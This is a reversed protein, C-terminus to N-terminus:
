GEDPYLANLKDAMTYAIERCVEHDSRKPVGWAEHFPHVVEWKINAAFLDFRRIAGGSWSKEGFYGLLHNKIGIEELEHLLTEMTPFIGTNYACSGLIVGRFRFIDNIIYSPHTKSTDHIRIKKIGKEALYRAVGDAMAETNGYMSSFAIVVGKATEYKSWADYKAIIDNIYSRRIPGHTSCIMRIPLNVLKKLALQAPQGFKGIINSYYRSIEEELYDLDVEDDFIGGDLTGFAGFIDGSFLIGESAEFTVMTEPWHLMPAMYFALTHQGIELTTGEKVEMLRDEMNYFHKLIPFTKANGIITAEPYRRILNKLAGTHDPEMHNIIVYDVKRGNLLSAINEVYDEMKNREITDVVVVKEDVILYSNYAVGKPLPWYNEFLRTRRDNVGIWYINEKIKIAQNM